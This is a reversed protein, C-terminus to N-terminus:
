RSVNPPKRSRPPRSPSRTPCRRINRAPIASKVNADTAHPRAAECPTSTPARATCPTPPAITEATASDSMMVSKVSGASRAFAIPTKPKTADPPPEIPTRSPPTRVSASSQCQIKRTLTGTPIATNVSV